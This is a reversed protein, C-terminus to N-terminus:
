PKAKDSLFKWKLFTKRVSARRVVIRQLNNCGVVVKRYVTRVDIAIPQQM